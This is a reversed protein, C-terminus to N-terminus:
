SQKGIRIFKEEVLKVARRFNKMIVRKNKGRRALYAVRRNPCQDMVFNICFYAFEYAEIKSIAYDKTLDRDILFVYAGSSRLDTCPRVKNDEEVTTVIGDKVTIGHEYDGNFYVTGNGRWYKYEYDKVLM